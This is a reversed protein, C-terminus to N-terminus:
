DFAEREFGLVQVRVVSLQKNKENINVNRVIRYRNLGGDMM